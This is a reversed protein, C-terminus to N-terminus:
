SPGVTPRVPRLREVDTIAVDLLTGTRCDELLAREPGIHEVYYLHRESCLYDGHAVEAVPSTLTTASNTSTSMPVTGIM